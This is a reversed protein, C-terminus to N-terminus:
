HMEASKAEPMKHSIRGRRDMTTATSRVETTEANTTPHREDTLSEDKSSIVGALFIRGASRYSRTITSSMTSGAPHADPDRSLEALRAAILGQLAPHLAFWARMRRTLLSDLRVTWPM